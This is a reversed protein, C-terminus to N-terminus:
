SSRVFCLEVDMADIVQRARSGNSVVCADEDEILEFVPRTKITRRHGLSANVTAVSWWRRLTGTAACAECPHRFFTAASDSLRPTLESLGHPMASIKTEIRGRVAGFFHCRPSMAAGRM